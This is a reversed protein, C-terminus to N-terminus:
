SYYQKLSYGSQRYVNEVIKDMTFNQARKVTQVKLQQLKEPNEYLSSLADSIEKVLDEQTRGATPLIMGCTDDVIQCPGGLDLCLVPIQHAIAELIANGSSDRLSPFVLLDYQRYMAFLEPQPVRGVWDIKDYVQHQRAQQKVWDEDSGGGVITLQTDPYKKSLLAYAAIALHVGKWYALRGVFLLKLRGTSINEKLDPKIEPLRELGTELAVSCKAHYKGPISQKTENTKCVISRSNKFTLRLLPNFMSVRNIADRIIEIKIFKFPFSKRITYPYTEGGGVPGFIFPKPLVALFSPTRFVGYTIHHIVDINHKQLIEKARWYVGVQWLFYYIHVLGGEFNSIRLRKPLDYYVFVLNQRQAEPLQQLGKEIAQRNRHCTLVVVQHQKALTVAFNWGVGPESGYNPQCAFASLLIKM